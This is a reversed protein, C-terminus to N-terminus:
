EIPVLECVGADTCYENPGCDEHDTCDGPEEPEEPAPEGHGPDGLGDCFDVHSIASVEPGGTGHPHLWSLGDGQFREGGAKVMYSLGDAGIIEMSFGVYEGSEGDKEIWDYFTVEIDGLPLTLEEVGIDGDEIKCDDRDFGASDNAREEEGAEVSLENGQGVSDDLMCGPLGLLTSFLLAPLLSRKTM